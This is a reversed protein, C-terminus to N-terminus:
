LRRGRIARIGYVLFFIFLPVFTVVLRLMPGPGEYYGMWMYPVNRLELAISLVVTFWFIFRQKELRMFSAIAIFWVAYWPYLEERLPAFVFFSILLIWYGYILKKERSVNKLFLLPILMITVGKIFFSAIFIFLGFLRVRINKGWWLFLGILALSMMYIDNHGSVLIEFVVLPNFAFFIVNRKSRTVHWICYIFCFYVFGNLAKFALITPWIVGGGVFAPIATILLWVPGYLAYKNAARTFALYPENQIEIPMVVYPNEHYHYLVKATTMYNFLDYTFAPYSLVFFVVSVILWVKLNKIGKMLLYVYTAAIVTFLVIFLLSAVPRNTYALQFLPNHIYTYFLNKSLVIHPDTYGYSFIMFVVLAASYLIFLLQEM